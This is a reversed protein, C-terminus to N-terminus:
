DGDWIGVISQIQIVALTSVGESSAIHEMESTAILKTSGSRENHDMESTILKM